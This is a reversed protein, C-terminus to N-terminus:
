KDKGPHKIKKKSALTKDFFAKADGYVQKSEPSDPLAAYDAHSLAEIVTLDTLVGADRLKRHVRVTLSLFLDRTGTTLHTPPFGAFDGYVPSIEPDTLSKGGAYLEAAAGLSGDYSVLGTDVFENTFYSDGVKGLDSWPTGAWLAGPLKIGKAKCRHILALTIGGGTSTGFVGIKKPNMTKILECWVAEADDIAAPYPFDPAMRYDVSVVRYGGRSAMLIADELGARGPAYVYAGGHFNLLLKDHNEPPLANPTIWFVPVGGIKDERIAVGFKEPWAADRKIIQETSAKVIARWDEATRPKIKWAVNNKREVILARLEPSATQPLPFAPRCPADEAKAVSPLSAAGALAAFGGLLKRRDFSM